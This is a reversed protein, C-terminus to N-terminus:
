PSRWGGCAVGFPTANLSVVVPVPAEPSLREALGEWYRDLMADGVVLVPASPTM